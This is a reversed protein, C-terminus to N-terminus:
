DLLAELKPLVNQVILPQAKANPHIRDDQMLGPELAIGELLFPVLPVNQEEAVLHFSRHFMETYSKGYNPPIRMGLLLVKAGHQRSLEVIRRLNDRLTTVPYGRLGDNGGIEVIVLAPNYRELLAPLRQLAGSSTDGSISANIVRYSPYEDRLKRELLSVWNKDQPMGHGASISDGLVLLSEPKSASAPQIILFLVCLTLM